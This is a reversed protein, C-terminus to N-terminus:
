VTATESDLQLGANARALLSAESLSDLPSANRSKSAHLLTSNLSGFFGVIQGMLADGAPTNEEIRGGAREIMSLVIWALESQAPEPNGDHRLYKLFMAALADGTQCGGAYGGVAPVAWFDDAVGVFPLRRFAIKRKNRSQLRQISPSM